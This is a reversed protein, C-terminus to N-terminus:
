NLLKVKWLTKWFKPNQIVMNPHLSNKADPNLAYIDFPTVMYIKAISEITEGVKVKHTKYNQANASISFLVLFSLSVLFKKM